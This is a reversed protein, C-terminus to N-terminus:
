IYFIQIFYVIIYVVLTARASAAEKWIQMHIINKINFTLQVHFSFTFPIEMNHIVSWWSQKSM